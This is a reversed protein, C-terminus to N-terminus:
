PAAPLSLNRFIKWHGDPQLKWVTSYRGNFITGDPFHAEAYGSEYALDRDVFLSGSRVFGGTAPGLKDLLQKYGDAIASRGKVCDGSPSCNVADDSYSAVVQDVNGAKLGDVWAQNAADIDRQLNAPLHKSTGASVIACGALFLALAPLFCLNRRVASFIFRM